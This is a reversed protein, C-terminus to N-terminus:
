RDGELLEAAKAAVGDDLLASVAAILDPQESRLIMEQIMSNPLSHRQLSPLSLIASLSRSLERDKRAAAVLTVFAPNDGVTPKSRRRRLMTTEHRRVSLLRDEIPRSSSLSCMPTPTASTRASTLNPWERRFRVLGSKSLSKAVAPCRSSADFPVLRVCFM